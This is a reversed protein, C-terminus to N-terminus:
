TIFFFRNNKQPHFRYLTVKDEKCKGEKHFPKNWDSNFSQLTTSLVSVDLDPYTNALGHALQYCETEAGSGLSKGYWTSVFAIHTRGRSFKPQSFSQLKKIKKLVKLLFIVEEM